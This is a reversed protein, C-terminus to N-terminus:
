FLLLRILSLFVHPVKGPNKASGKSAAEGDKVRQPELQIVITDFIPKLSDHWRLSADLRLGSDNRPATMAVRCDM